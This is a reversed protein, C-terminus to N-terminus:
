DIVEDIDNVQKSSHNIKRCVKIFEHCLEYECCSLYHSNSNINDLSLSTAFGHKLTLYLKLLKMTRTNLQITTDMLCADVNEMYEM